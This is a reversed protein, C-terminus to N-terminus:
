PSRAIWPWIYSTGDITRNMTNFLVDATELHKNLKRFGIALGFGADRIGEFRQIKGLRAIFSRALMELGKNFERFNDSFLVGTLGKLLSISQFAESDWGTRIDQNYFLKTVNELEDISKSKDKAKVYVTLRTAACNLAWRGGWYKRYKQAVNELQNLRNVLYKVQSPTPEAYEALECLLANTSATVYELQQIKEKLGELSKASLNAIKHAAKHFGAIRYIYLNEYDYEHRYKPHLSNLDVKGIYSLAKCLAGKKDRRRSNEALKIFLFSRIDSVNANKRLLETLRDAAIALKRETQLSLVQNLDNKINPPPEVIAHTESSGDSSLIRDLFGKGGKIWEDRIQFMSTISVRGEHCSHHHKKCLLILNDIETVGGMELPVIHHAQIHDPSNCIACREGLSKILKKRFPETREGEKPSPDFTKIVVVHKGLAKRLQSSTEILEKQFTFSTEKLM